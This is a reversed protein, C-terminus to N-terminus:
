AVGIVHVATYHPAKMQETAFKGHGSNTHSTSCVAGTTSAVMPSDAGVAQLLVDDFALAPPLTM